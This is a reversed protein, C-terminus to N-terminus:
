KKKKKEEFAKVILPMDIRLRECQEWTRDKVTKYEKWKVLFHPAGKFKRRLLTKEIIYDVTISNDEEVEHKTIWAMVMDPATEVM